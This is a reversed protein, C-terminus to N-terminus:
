EDSLPYFEHGHAYGSSLGWRGKPGSDRLSPDFAQIEGTKSLHRMLCGGGMAPSHSPKWQNVLLSATIDFHLVAGCASWKHPFLVPISCPFPPSRSFSGAFPGTSSSTPTLIKYWSRRAKFCDVFFIQCLSML